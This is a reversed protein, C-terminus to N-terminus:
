CELACFAGFFAFFGGIFFAIGWGLFFAVKTDQNPAIRTALLRWALYCAAMSLPLATVGLYSFQGNDGPVLWFFVVTPVTVLLSVLGSVVFALM